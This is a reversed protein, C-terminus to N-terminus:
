LLKKNRKNGLPPPKLDFTTANAAATGGFSVGASSNFSTNGFINGSSTTSTLGLVAFAPRTLPTRPVKSVLGLNWPSGPCSICNFNWHLPFIARHFQFPNNLYWTITALYQGWNQRMMQCGHKKKPGFYIRLLHLNQGFFLFSRLDKSTTQWKLAM